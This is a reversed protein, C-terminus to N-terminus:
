RKEIYKFDHYITYSAGRHNLLLLCGKEYCLVHSQHVVTVNGNVAEIMKIMFM